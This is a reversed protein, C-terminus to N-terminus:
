NKCIWAPKNRKTYHLLDAKAGLYYSRYAGVPNGKDMYKFPMAQAPPTPGVDPMSDPPSSLVDRLKVWSLHHKGYRYTYEDALAKFHAYLWMYNDRSDRAWKACPHNTHTKAYMVDSTTEYVRHATCLLQATELVMKVVHKDGQAQAAEVPCESLYFVNM